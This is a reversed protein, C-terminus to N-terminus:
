EKNLENLIAIEIIQIGKSVGNILYIDHHFDDVLENLKKLFENLEKSNSIKKKKM